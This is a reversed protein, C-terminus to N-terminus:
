IIRKISKIKEIDKQVIEISSKIVYLKDQLKELRDNKYELWYQKLGEISPAVEGVTAKNNVIIILDKSYDGICQYKYYDKIIIRSKHKNREVSAVKHKTLVGWEKYNLSYMVDGINIEGFTKRQPENM